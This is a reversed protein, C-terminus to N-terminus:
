SNTIKVGEDSYEYGEPPPNGSYIQYDVNPPVFFKSRMVVDRTGLLFKKLLIRV